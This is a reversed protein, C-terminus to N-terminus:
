ALNINIKKFMQNNSNLIFSQKYTKKIVVYYIYKDLLVQIFSSSKVSKAKM